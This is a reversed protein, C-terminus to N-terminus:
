AESCSSIKPMVSASASGITSGSRTGRERLLEEIDRFSLSYSPVLARRM